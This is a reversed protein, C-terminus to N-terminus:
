LGTALQYGEQVADFVRRARRTDGASYVEDVLSYAEQYLTEYGRLGAAVVVRDAKVTRGDALTIGEDTIETVSADTIFQINASKIKAQAAHRYVPSTEMMVEPMMEVVTVQKGEDMLKYATECGVLGGGIVIVTSIDDQPELLAKDFTMAKDIGKVPPLFPAAGTADIFVDPQVQKIYDADVLRNYEIQIPAAEAQRVIWHWYQIIEPKFSVAGAEPLRGGLYNNKEALIVQHGRKAATMAATLGAPGGGAILVKKSKLAPTLKKEEKGFEPNVACAAYHDHWLNEICKMCRICPRIDAAEKEAKRVWEPEALWARGMSIFDCIGNQLLKEGDAPNELKNEFIVPKTVGKKFQRIAQLYEKNDSYASPVIHEQNYYNGIRCEYADVLDLKELTQAVKIAYDPTVGQSEFHPVVAKEGTTLCGPLINDYKEDLCFNLIIPFNAGCTKKVSQICEILFRMRKEDSGGYEDERHNWVPSLFQSILYGGSCMVDIADFGAEKIKAAAAGFCDILYHIEDLTLPRTYVDNHYQTVVRSPAVPVEGDAILDALRGGGATLEAAIKGGYLHVADAVAAFEKIREGRDMIPFDLSRPFPDLKQESKVVSTFILGAGGKARAEYVAKARETLTADQANGYMFKFDMPALCVRNRLKMSGIQAPKLLNGYTNKM